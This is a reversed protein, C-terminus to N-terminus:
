RLMATSHMLPVTAPLTAYNATRDFQQLRFELATFVHAIEKDAIRLRQQRLNLLSDRAIGQMCRFLSYASPEKHHMIPGIACLQWVRVLEQRVHQTGIAFRHRKCRLRHLLGAKDVITPSFNLNEVSGAEFLCRTLAVGDYSLPEVGEQPWGRSRNLSICFFLHGLGLGEYQVREVMDRRLKAGTVSRVERPRRIYQIYGSMAACPPADVAGGEKQVLSSLEVAPSRQSPM